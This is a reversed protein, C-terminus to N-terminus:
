TGPHQTADDGGSTETGGGRARYGVFLSSPFQAGYHIGRPRPVYTPRPRVDPEVARRYLHWTAHGLIPLVVALGIFLPLSGILLAAAVILGWVAMTFPNRRVVRLSTLIAGAFGVDRDLLLPFSIVSLVFAAVAFLFGVANGITLLRWGEPTSLVTNAFDLLSKPSGYGFTAVYIANASAIWIFFLILLLLGLAAIAGLSPSHVVDFAHRWSTDLGQERRRSLEYLGIAAIPGIIAFGTAMPYLLPLMELAFVSRWILLGVVPYIVCLFIVHTPMAVFDELGKALARLLDKLGIDRVHPLESTRTTPMIIDTRAM